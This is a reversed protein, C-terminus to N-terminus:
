DEQEYDDVDEEYSTKKSRVKRQKKPKYDDDDEEDDYSENEEIISKEDESLDRIEYTSVDFHADVWENMIGNNQKVIGFEIVNPKTTDEPYYYEDRYLSVVLRSDKAGGYYIDNMTPRKDERREVEKVVQALAIVFIKKLKGHPNVFYSGAITKLANSVRPIEISEPLTSDSDMKLLQYYDIIVVDIDHIKVLRSIESRLEYVSLDPKGVWFINNTKLGNGEDLVKEILKWDNSKLLKPNLMRQSYIGERISIIRKVCDPVNMELTFYGVKVGNDSMNNALNLTVASKGIGPAGIIYTLYGKLIKAKEDLEEIYFRVNNDDEADDVIEKVTENIAQSMDMRVVTNDSVIEEEFSNVAEMLEEVTSGNTNLCKTINQTCRIVKRVLSLDKLEKIYAQLYKINIPKGSALKLRQLKNLNLVSQKKDDDDEYDIKSIIIDLDDGVAITQEVYIDVITAYFLKHREISFDEELLNMSLAIEIAGEHNLLLNLVKRETQSNYTKMKNDSM